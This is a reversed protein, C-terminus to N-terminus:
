HFVNIRNSQPVWDRIHLRIFQWYKTGNKSTVTLTPSLTVKHNLVVAVIQNNTVNKKRLKHCQRRMFMIITNLRGTLLNSEFVCAFNANCLNQFVFNKIQLERLIQHWFLEWNVTYLCGTGTLMYVIYLSSSLFILHQLSM